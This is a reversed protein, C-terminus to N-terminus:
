RRPAMEGAGNGAFRFAHAAAPPITRGDRGVARVDVTAIVEDGLLVDFVGERGTPRFAVDKGRLRKAVRVV